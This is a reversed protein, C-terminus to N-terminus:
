MYTYYIYIHTYTYVCVGTCIYIYIYVYTHIITSGSIIISSMYMGTYMYLIDNYRTYMYMYM